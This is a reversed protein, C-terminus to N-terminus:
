RCKCHNRNNAFLLSSPLQYLGRFRMSSRELRAHSEQNCAKRLMGDFITIPWNQLLAKFKELSISNDYYPNISDNAYAWKIADSGIEQFLCGWFRQAKVCM